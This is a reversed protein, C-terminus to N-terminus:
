IKNFKVGIAGYNTMISMFYTGAPLMSVDVKEQYDGPPLNKKTFDLLTKGTLDLVRFTVDSVSKLSFPFFVDGGSPNPFPARLTLGNQSVEGIGMHDDDDDHHEIEVIPYLALHTAIATPTTHEEYLDKWSPAGHAHPKFVNRFPVAAIDAATRSGHPAYYLGVTDAGLPHHAYDGLEMTVFFANHVHVDDHFLIITPGDLNVDGLDVHGDEVPAIGLPKGTATDVNWLGFDIELDPDSVTGTSTTIHAVVGLVHVHDDHNVLYKEGFVEQKRSNHGAYFGWSGAVTYKGAELVLGAAHNSLTDEHHHQAYAANGLLATLLLLNKM